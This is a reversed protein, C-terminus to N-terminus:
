RLLTRSGILLAHIKNRSSKPTKVAYVNRRSIVAQGLQRHDDNNVSSEICRFAHFFKGPEAMEGIPFIKDDEIWLTNTNEAIQLM